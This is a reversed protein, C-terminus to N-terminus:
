RIMIQHVPASSLSTQRDILGRKHALDASAKTLKQYIQSLWEHGMSLSKRQRLVVNRALSMRQSREFAAKPAYSELGWFLEGEEHFDGNMMLKLIEKVEGRIRGHDRKSWYYDQIEEKSFHKRSPILHVDMTDAFTVIRSRRRTPRHKNKTTTASVSFTAEQDLQLNGPAVM